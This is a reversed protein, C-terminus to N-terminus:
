VNFMLFLYLWKSSIKYHNSWITELAKTKIKVAQWGPYKPVFQEKGQQGCQLVHRCVYPRHEQLAPQLPWIFFFYCWRSSVAFKFARYLVWSYIVFHIKWFTSMGISVITLIRTTPLANVLCTISEVSLTQTIAFITFYTFVM